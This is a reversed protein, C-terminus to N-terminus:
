SATQGVSGFQFEPPGAPVDGCTGESVRVSLVEPEGSEDYTMLFYVETGPNLESAGEDSVASITGSANLGNIWTVDVGPDVTGETAGSEDEEIINGKGIGGGLRLPDGNAPDYPFIHSTDMNGNGDIRFLIVDTVSISEGDFYVVGDGIDYTTGSPASIGNLCSVDASLSGDGAEAVTAKAFDYAM